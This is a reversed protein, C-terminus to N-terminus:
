GTTQTTHREGVLEWWGSAVDGSRIRRSSAKGTMRDEKEACGARPRSLRTRSGISRPPEDPSGRRSGGQRSLAFLLLLLRTQGRSQQLPPSRPSATMPNPRLRRRAGATPHAPKIPQPPASSSTTQPRATTLPPIRHLGRPCERCILPAARRLRGRARGVCRGDYEGLESM